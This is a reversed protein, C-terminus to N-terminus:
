KLHWGSITYCNHKWELEVSNDLIIQKWFMKKVQQHITAVDTPRDALQEDSGSICVQIHRLVCDTRWSKDGSMNIVVVMDQLFAHIWQTVVLRIVVSLGRGSNM